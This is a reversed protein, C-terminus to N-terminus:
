ECCSPPRDGFELGLAVAQFVADGLEQGRVRLEGLVIAVRARM